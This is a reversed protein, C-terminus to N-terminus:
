ERFSADYSPELKITGLMQDILTIMKADASSRGPGTDDLRSYQDGAKPENAASFKAVGSLYRKELLSRAKPEATVAMVGRTLLPGLFAVKSFKVTKAKGPKVVVKVASLWFLHWALSIVIAVALVKYESLEIRKIM